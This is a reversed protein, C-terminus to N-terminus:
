SMGRLVEQIKPRKRLSKSVNRYWPRLSFVVYLSELLSLWRRVTDVSVGVERSLSSCNLLSGSRRTLIELFVSLQGIEVVRTLDRIEERVFQERRLARWRNAFRTDARLFPEPFGGFRLLRALADGAPRAPPHAEGRVPDPRVTEALSVPHMRYPFYRGMLSDGGRQYVTLRASGTVVVRAKEGYTDFFGKLFQRWRGYKHLEDLVVVPAEKRLEHLGFEESVVRPGKLILERDSLNDWNLYPGGGSVALCTTTKGVQRPGSVFAMQRHAGLHELLASEYIRKM